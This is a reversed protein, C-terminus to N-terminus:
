FLWNFLRTFLGPTARRALLGEGSIEVYSNALRTSIITNNASIDIARARGKVSIYQTDNNFVLKQEGELMLDGNPLVGTITVSVSATIKGSQQTSGGGGFDSGIGLSGNFGPVGEFLKASVSVSKDTDISISSTATSKEYILVTIIDGLKHSRVDSVLPTYQKSNYLSGSIVPTVWVSFFLIFAVSSTRM